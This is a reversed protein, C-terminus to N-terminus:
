ENPLCRELLITKKWLAIIFLMIMRATSGFTLPPCFRYRSYGENGKGHGKVDEPKHCYRYHVDVKAM